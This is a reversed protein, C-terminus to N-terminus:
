RTSFELSLKINYNLCLNPVYKLQCYLQKMKPGPVSGKNDNSMKNNNQQQQQQKQAVSKCYSFVGVNWITIKRFQEKILNADVSTTPSEIQRWVKLMYTM